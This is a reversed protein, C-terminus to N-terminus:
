DEARRILNLAEEKREQQNLMKVLQSYIEFREETEESLEASKKLLRIIVEPYNNHFKTIVNGALLYLTRAATRNQNSNNLLNSGESIIKKKERETFSQEWWDQLENEKIFTIEQNKKRKLFNFIDM